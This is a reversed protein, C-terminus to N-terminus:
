GAMIWRTAKGMAGAAARTAGRQGPLARLGHMARAWDPLLDLGAQMAVRQFPALEPRPASQSRLAASTEKTRADYRLQPRAQRMYAEIGARTVPMGPAGLKEAIVAMDAFYRNQAVRPMYPNLYRLHAALFSWSETVHVWGLLEPETAAYPTGDPLTGSVKGHIANIRACLRGADASSGYTTVAVFRATRRLRGAMDERFDSHDWVGALARPHLMQLFLSCIGGIMMSTLDTHVARTPSSAPFLGEEPAAPFQDETVHEGDQTAFLKRIPAAMARSLIASPRSRPM